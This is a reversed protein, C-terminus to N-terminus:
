PAQSSHLPNPADDPLRRRHTVVTFQSPTRRLTSTHGVLLVNAKRPKRKLFYRLWM